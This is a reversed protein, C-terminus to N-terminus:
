VPSKFYNHNIYQYHTPFLYVTYFVSQWLCLSLCKVFIILHCAVILTNCTFHFICNNPSVLLNSMSTHLSLFRATTRRFYGLLFVFSYFTSFNLCDGGRFIIWDLWGVLYFFYSLSHIMVSISHLFMSHCQM